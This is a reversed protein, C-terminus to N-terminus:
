PIRRSLIKILLGFIKTTDKREAKNALLACKETITSGFIHQPHHRLIPFDGAILQPRDDIEITQDTPWFYDYIRIVPLEALANSTGCLEPIIERFKEDILPILDEAKTHKPTKSDFYYIYYYLENFKKPLEERYGIVYKGYFNNGLLEKLSFATDGPYSETLTAGKIYPGSWESKLKAESIKCYLNCSETEACAPYKYMVDLKNIDYTLDIDNTRDDPIRYLRNFEGRGKLVPLCHLHEFFAKASYKVTEVHKIVGKKNVHDLIKSADFGWYSITLILGALFLAVTMELVTFGRSSIKINTTIQSM